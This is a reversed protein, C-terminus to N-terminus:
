ALARALLRFQRELRREAAPKADRLLLVPETAWILCDFLAAAAEAPDAVHMEGSAVGARILETLEARLFDHFHSLFQTKEKRGLAEFELLDSALEIALFDKQEQLNHFFEAVTRVLDEIRHFASKRSGAVGVLRQRLLPVSREAVAAILARKSPFFKYINAPSMGLAHAIDAMAIKRCGFRRLLESAKLLIREPTESRTAM